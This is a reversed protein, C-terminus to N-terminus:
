SRHSQKLARSVMQILRDKQVPKMLVASVHWRAAESLLDPNQDGTVMIVPQAMNQSHMVKVMEFGDMPVMRVDLIVVHVTDTKLIALGSVGDAAELVTYSEDQLFRVMQMRVFDNDEVVLISKQDSM